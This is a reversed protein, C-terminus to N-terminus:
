FKEVQALALKIGAMFVNAGAALEAIKQFLLGLWFVTSVQSKDNESPSCAMMDNAQRHFVQATQDRGRPNDGTITASQQPRNSKGLRRAKNLLPRLFNPPLGEGPGNGTRRGRTPKSSATACNPKTASTVCCRTFRSTSIPTMPTYSFTLEYDCAGVKRMGYLRLHYNEIYARARQKGRVFKNNNEVRLWLEVVATKKVNAPATPKPPGATATWRLGLHDNAAEVLDQRTGLYRETTQVSAHGLLLQIQELDAGAARCLKACTRRADHAKLSVGLKQGCHAVLDLIAQPSLSAGTIRGHRDMARLLRGEAIAAAATWDDIAQKVWAPVPVTRLRGHKGLLDPIVWRGERQQIQQLTLAAAESRRLGCGVLLALVARDHTGKLTKTGDEAKRRDQARVFIASKLAPALRHQKTIAFQANLIAPGLPTESV